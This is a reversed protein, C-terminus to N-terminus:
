LLKSDGLVCRLLRPLTPRAYAHGHLPMPHARRRPVDPRKYGSLQRHDDMWLLLALPIRLMLGWAVKSAITATTPHDSPATAERWLRARAVLIPTLGPVSLLPVPLLSRGDILSGARRSEFLSSEWDQVEGEGCHGCGANCCGDRDSDDGCICADRITSDQRFGVRDCTCIPRSYSSASCTATYGPPSPPPPPNVPLLPPREGCNLEL